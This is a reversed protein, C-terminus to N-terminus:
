FSINIQDGMSRGVIQEIDDKIRIAEVIIMYEGTILEKKDFLLINTESNALKEPDYLFLSLNIGNTDIQNIDIVKQYIPFNIIRKSIDIRYYDINPIDCEWRILEDHEMYKDVDELLLRIHDYAFITGMDYRDIEPEIHITDTGIFSPPINESGDIM